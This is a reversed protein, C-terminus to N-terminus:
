PSNKPYIRYLRSEKGRSQPALRLDWTRVRLDICSGTRVVRMWLGCVGGQAGQVRWGLGSVGIEAFRRNLIM